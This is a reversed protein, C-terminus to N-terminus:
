RSRDLWVRVSPMHEEHLHDTFTANVLADGIWPFATPDTLKDDPLREVARALRDYSDDYAAVLEAPSRGADQEHLWENIIEDDLQAPWPPAPEPEGRGAAEVRAITRNRWGLLHGAMDGFTWEGMPGPEAYRDPGVEAVLDRWFQQDERISALVDAKTRM